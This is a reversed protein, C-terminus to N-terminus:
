KKVADITSLNTKYGYRMNNTIVHPIKMLKKALLQSRIKYIIQTLCIPRYTPFEKPDGKNKYIRVLSGAVWSKPLTEGHKIKNM